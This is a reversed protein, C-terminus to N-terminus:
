EAVVDIINSDTSSATESVVTEPLKANIVKPAEFDAVVKKSYGMKGMVDPCLRGILRGVTRHFLMDKAYNRWGDGETLRKGSKSNVVSAAEEITWSAEYWADSPQRRGRIRCVKDTEEVIEYQFGPVHRIAQALQLQSSPCMRGQIMSFEDLAEREALGLEWATLLVALVVEPREFKTALNGIYMYIKARQIMEEWTKGTPILSQQPSRVIVEGSPKIALATSDKGNESM